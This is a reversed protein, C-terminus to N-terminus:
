FGLGWQHVVALDLRHVVALDTRIHQELPPLTHRRRWRQSDRGHRVLRRFSEADLARWDSQM